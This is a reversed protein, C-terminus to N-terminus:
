SAADTFEMESDLTGVSSTGPHFLGFGENTSAVLTQPEVTSDGYGTNWVEAYPILTEMSDIDIALAESAIAIEDNSWLFQRLLNDTPCSVSRAIGVTTNANLASYGANHAVPTIASGGSSANTRKVQLQTLVGVVAGSQNNYVWMRYVRIYRTSSSSNFIDMMWKGSGFATATALAHWTNAM